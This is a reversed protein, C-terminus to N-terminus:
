TYKEQQSKYYGVPDAIPGLFNFALHFRISEYKRIDPKNFDLPLFRVTRRLQEVYLDGRNRESDVWSVSGTFLQPKGATMPIDPISALYSRTIRRRGRLYEAEHELERFIEFAEETNGVHFASLGLLYKISPNNYSEEANILDQILLYCYLWDQPTFPVTQREHFFIPKGCYSLWWLRLLLYLCRGDDAINLRNDELYTAAVLCRQREIMSIPENILEQPNLGAQQYARLYYGARSGMNKLADFAENSLDIDGLIHAIDNRRKHFRERQDFSFDESDAREFIHLIWPLYNM